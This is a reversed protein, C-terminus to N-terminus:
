ALEVTIEDLAPLGARAGLKRCSLSAAATATLLRQELPWGQLMSYCYAGVFLDGAGSTDVVDVSLAPQQVLKTGELAMSGESGLMVVVTEAGMRSIDLLTDELEGRPAVEAAYRESAILVDALAVLEGIGERIGSAHVVVKIARDQAAEALVTQAEVHYGDLVLIGAGDLVSFNVQKPDLSSTNGVTHFTMNRKSLREVLTFAYPSICGAEVIAHKTDIGLGHFGSLIFRGFDDDGLTGVFSCSVGWSALIALANGIAGGGQISFENLEHVSDPEPFRDVIALHNLLAEGCGIVRQKM